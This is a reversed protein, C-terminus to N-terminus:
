MWIRRKLCRCLPYKARFWALKEQPIGPRTPPGTGVHAWLGPRIRRGSSVRGIWKNLGSDLANAEADLGSMSTVKHVDYQSCAAVGSAYHRGVKKGASLFNAANASVCGM